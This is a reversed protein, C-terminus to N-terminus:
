LQRALGEKDIEKVRDSHFLRGLDVGDVHETIFYAKSRFPGWRKELFAVPKATRIGLFVLRHSNRWSIWARSRRFCRRLGHWTSKINYRKVVLSKGSMVVLAVTSTNGKKLLRSEDIVLDPNSLFRILKEDYFERDCVM